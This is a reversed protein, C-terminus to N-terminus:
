DLSRPIRKQRKWEMVTKSHKTQNCKACAPALNGISHRGGRALPLVHDIHESKAGCYACPQALLRRIDKATVLYVGAAMKRARRREERARGKDRNQSDYDRKRARIAEANAQHYAASFERIRDRHAKRYERAIELRSQHYRRKNEAIKERNKERYIRDKVAREERTKARYELWCGKCWQQLGDKERSAKSFNSKPQIQKCRGCAKSDNM